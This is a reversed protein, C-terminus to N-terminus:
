ARTKLCRESIAGTRLVFQRKIAGATPISQRGLARLIESRPTTKASTLPSPLMYYSIAGLSIIFLGSIVAVVKWTGRTPLSRRLEQELEWMDRPFSEHRVSFAQRFALQKLDDPLDKAEPM